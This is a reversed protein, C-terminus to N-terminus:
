QLSLSHKDCWHWTAVGYPHCVEVGGKSMVNMERKVYMSFNVDLIFKSMGEIDSTYFVNYEGISKSIGDTWCMKSIINFVKNFHKYINKMWWRLHLRFEESICSTELFYLQRQSILQNEFTRAAQLRELNFTSYFRELEPHNEFFLVTTGGVSREDYIFLRNMDMVMALASKLLVGYVDGHAFSGDIRLWDVDGAWFGDVTGLYRKPVIEKRWYWIM